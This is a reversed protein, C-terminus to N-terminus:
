IKEKYLYTCKVAGCSALRVPGYTETSVAAVVGCWSLRVKKPLVKLNSLAKFDKLFANFFSYFVRVFCIIVGVYGIDFKSYNSLKSFIIFGNKFLFHIM